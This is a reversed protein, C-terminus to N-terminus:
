RSYKDALASFGASSGARFVTHTTFKGERRPQSTSHHRPAASAPMPPAQNVHAQAIATIVDPGLLAARKDPPLMAIVDRALEQMEGWADSALKSVPAREGKEVLHEYMAWLMVSMHNRVKSKEEGPLELKDMARQFIKENRETEAQEAAREAQQAEQERAKRDAEQRQAERARLQQLEREAPTMREEAEIASQMHTIMKRPDLGAEKWARMAREPHILSEALMRQQERLTANENKIAKAEEFRQRAAAVQQADRHVDDWKTVREQGDIKQRAVYAKSEPDWSLPNPPIDPTASAGTDPAPAANTPAAAAETM